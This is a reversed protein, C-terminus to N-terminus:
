YSSSMDSFAKSMSFSNSIDEPDLNGVSFDNGTNKNGVVSVCDMNMTLDTSSQALKTMHIQYSKAGLSTDGTKVNTARIKNIENVSM